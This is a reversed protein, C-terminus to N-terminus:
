LSEFYSKNSTVHKKDLNNDYDSKKIIKFDISVRLQSSDNPRPGHILNGSFLASHNFETKMIKKNNLDVGSVINKPQYLFGLKHGFSNKQTFKDNESETFIESDPINQSDPIYMLAEPTLEGYIPTWINFVKKQIDGYFSERHFPIAEMKHPTKDSLPRTSRLYLFSQILIKENNFYENIGTEINEYILRHINKETLINQFELIIKRYDDLSRSFFDKLYILDNLEKRIISLCNSNSHPIIKISSRQM